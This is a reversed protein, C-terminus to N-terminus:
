LHGNGDIKSILFVPKTNDVVKGHESILGILQVNDAMYNFSPFLLAIPKDNGIILVAYQRLYSPINNESLIDSVKKSKGSFGVPTFRDGVKYSRFYCTSNSENLQFFLKENLSFDMGNTSDQLTIQFFNAIFVAQNPTEIQPLYTPEYQKYHSSNFAYIVENLSNLYWTAADNKTKLKYVWGNGINGVLQNAIEKVTKETLNFMCLSSHLWYNITAFRLHESLQRWKALDMSFPNLLVTNLIFSISEDFTTSLNALKLMSSDVSKYKKKIEPIITNRLFNRSYDMKLNSKDLRWAVNNELIYADIQNRNVSLLPRFYKNEFVPIGKFLQLAKGELVRHFITEVQDQLHHATCVVYNEAKLSHAVEKFCKYRYRRAKEQFNGGNFEPAEFVHFPIRNDKCFRDVLAQDEESDVGRLKYNVHVAVINSRISHMLHLLMMSDKGGSVGLVIATNEHINFADFYSSVLSVLQNSVSKNM